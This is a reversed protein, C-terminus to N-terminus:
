FSATSLPTPAITVLPLKAMNKWTQTMCVIKLLYFHIDLGGRTGQNTNGPQKGHGQTFGPQNILSLVCVSTGACHSLFFGCPSSEATYRWQFALRDPHGVNRSSCFLFHTERRKSVCCSHCRTFSRPVTHLLQHLAHMTQNSSHVRALGAESVESRWRKGRQRCWDRRNGHVQRRIQRGNAGM